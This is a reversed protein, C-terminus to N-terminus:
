KTYVIEYEKDYQYCRKGLIYFSYLMIYVALALFFVVIKSM